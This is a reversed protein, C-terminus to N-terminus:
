YRMRLVSARGFPPLSLIYLADPEDDRGVDIDSLQRVLQPLSAGNIVVLVSGGEHEDMVRAATGEPDNAPVVIPHKGLREAVPAVTQQARRSDSVYVADLQGLGHAGGLLEALRQARQEGEASLPADDITGPDKELSRAVVVLTTTPTSFVAYAVGAVVAM